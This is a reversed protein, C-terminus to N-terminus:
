FPVRIYRGGGFPAVLSKFFQKLHHKYFRKWGNYKYRPKLDSWPSQEVYSWFIHKYPNVCEKFWPKRLSAYHIIIPNFRCQLLEEKQWEVIPPNKRLFCELLNWRPSVAKIHGRCVVNLIDQDHFLIKDVHHQMFDRVRNEFDMQRMYDLNFLCMGSNFYGDQMPYGLRPFCKHLMLTTDPVAAMAYNSLDTNWLAELDGCVVMDCDLYLVRDCQPLLSPAKLRFYAEVSINSFRSGIPLMSYDSSDIPLIAIHQHYQQALTDFRLRNSQGMDSSLIYIHVVHRRNNQLLSTLMLGCYAGYADNAACLIHITSM